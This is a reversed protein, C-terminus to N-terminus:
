PGLAAALRAISSEDAAKAAEALASVQKSLDIAALEIGSPELAKKLENFRDSTMAFRADEGSDM